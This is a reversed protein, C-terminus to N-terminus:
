WDSRSYDPPPTPPPTPTVTVIRPGRKRTVVAVAFLVVGLVIAAGVIIAAIVVSNTSVANSAESDPDTSTSNSCESLTVGGVPQGDSDYVCSLDANTYGVETMLKYSTSFQSLWATNSGRFERAHSSVATNETCEDARGRMRGGCRNLQALNNVVNFALEMDANLMIRTPNDGRRWETHTADVATKQWPEFIEDYYDNDFVGSDPVWPGNYGSNATQTRGLTHAGLLAAADRFTLGMQDVFVRTIEAVGGEASPLRGGSYNCDAADTRGFRFPVTYGAVTARREVAVKGALVWFDAKSILHCFPARLTDLQGIVTALGNNDAQGLDVCGDVGLNDSSTRIDIEGADHFTLRVTAGVFDGREAEPLGNNVDGMATSLAAYMSAYDAQSLATTRNVCAQGSVEAVLMISAALALRTFFSAM